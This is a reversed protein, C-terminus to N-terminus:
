SQGRRSKRISLGHFHFGRAELYPAALRKASALAYRARRELAALRRQLLRDHQLRALEARVACAKDSRGVYRVVQRGNRRFRLKVYTHRGQRDNTLFGQRSLEVLDGDNLNLSRLAPFDAIQRNHITQELSQGHM